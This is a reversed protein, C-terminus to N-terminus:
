AVGASDRHRSAARDRARPTAPMCRRPRSARRGPAVSPPAPARAHQSCFALTPALGGALSSLGFVALGSLLARRQGLLDALRGGPLLFGGFTLTYANTVWPLAAPAFGLDARVRPLAVNVVMIDLVVMFQGLSAAPLVSALRRPRRIRAPPLSHM